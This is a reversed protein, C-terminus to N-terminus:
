QRQFYNCKVFVNKSPVFYFIFYARSCALIHSISNAYLYCCCESYVTDSLLSHTLFLTAWATTYGLLKREDYFIFIHTLQLYIRANLLHMKRAVMENRAVVVLVMICYVIVSQCLSNCACNKESKEVSRYKKEELKLVNRNYLSM